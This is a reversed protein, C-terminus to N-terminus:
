VVGYHQQRLIWKTNSFLQLPRSSVNAEGELAHGLFCGVSVCILKREESSIRLADLSLCDGKGGLDKGEYM